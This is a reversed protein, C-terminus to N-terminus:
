GDIQRPETEPAGSRLVQGPFRKELRGQDVVPNGNIFAWDLGSPLNAPHDYTANDTFRNPDFILIDAFYGPKILGRKALKMVQAPKATMDRIATELSFLSRNRQFHSIIRPFTGYARPHPFEGLVGDSGVTHLHHAMACEVDPTSMAHYIAIAGLKSARLIKCAAEEPPIAWIESAAALSKGVIQSCDQGQASAIKISDPGGRGAMSEKVGQRLRQRSRASEMHKNFGDWGGELAWGPLLLSLTTCSADYPYQDFSIEIGQKEAKDLRELVRPMKGWNNKGLCKLHSIHIRAGSKEGINIMEELADMIGEQENRIHSVIIGDYQRVVEGLGILEETNSYSSPPYILGLSLGFSGQEMTEALLTRMRGMDGPAAEAMKHGMVAMRLNCHGTLTMVNLQPKKASIRSLFQDMDWPIWKGDVPGALPEIIDAMFSKSAETLPAASIGDQGILETTVGQLIKHPITQGNVFLVDSHSHMDIFGPTAAKGQADITVEAPMDELQGVKAICGRSIAIDGRYAPVGSGDVISADKILYNMM